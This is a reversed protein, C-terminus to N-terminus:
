GINIFFTLSSFIDQSMGWRWACTALTHLPRITPRPIGSEELKITLIATEVLKPNNIESSESIHYTIIRKEVNIM